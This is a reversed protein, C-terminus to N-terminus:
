WRQRLLASNARKEMIRAMRREGIEPTIKAYAPTLPDLEAPLSTAFPIDHKKPLGWLEISSFSWSGEPAKGKWGEDHGMYDITTHPNYRPFSDAVEFGAEELAKWIRDRM